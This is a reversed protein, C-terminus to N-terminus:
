GSDRLVECNVTQASFILVECEINIRTVDAWVRDNGRM